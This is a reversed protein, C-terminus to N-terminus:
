KKKADKEVKGIQNMAATGREAEKKSAAAALEMIYTFEEHTKKKMEDWSIGFHQFVKNDAFQRLADALPSNIGNEEADHMAVTHLPRMKSQAFRFIGTSDAYVESLTLHAEIPDMAKANTLVNSIAATVHDRKGSRDRGFDNRSVHVM